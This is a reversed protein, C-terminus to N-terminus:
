GDVMREPILVPGAVAPIALTVEGRGVFRCRTHGATEGSPIVGLGAQLIVGSLALSDKRIVVGIEGCVALMTGEIPWSYLCANCVYELSLSLFALAHVTRIYIGADFAYPIVDPMTHLWGM